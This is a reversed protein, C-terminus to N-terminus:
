IHHNIDLISGEKEKTGDYTFPLLGFFIILSFHSIFSRHLAIFLSTCSSPIRFLIFSRPALTHTLYPHAPSAFPYNAAFLSCPIRSIDACEAFHGHSTLAGDVRVFNAGLCQRTRNTHPTWGGVCPLIIDDAFLAVDDAHVNCLGRLGGFSHM